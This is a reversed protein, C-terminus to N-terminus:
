RAWWSGITAASRRGVAHFKTHNEGSVGGKGLSEISPNPEHLGLFRYTAIGNIYDGPAARPFITVRLRHAGVLGPAVVM